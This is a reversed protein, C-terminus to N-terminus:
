NLTVYGAQAIVSQGENSLLWNLFKGGVNDADTSRIVANYPATFPYTNSRVNDDIPEVGDVSLIKINQNIYLRDVYYKFTYGIGDPANKYEAIREILQGMGTAFRDILPDMMQIGNMVMEEM